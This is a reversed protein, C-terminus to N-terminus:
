LELEYNVMSITAIGATETRLIRPGLTCISAGNQKLSDIEEEEFGGEPGIIIAISAINNSKLDRLFEKITINQESEYPVLVIDYKSINEIINEFNITSTVIPLKQRGCQKSAEVAIKNWREVKKRENEETIKVISRAMQVPVFENVGLETGKQVILDMKDSKPVGQYLTIEYRTESNKDIIQEIKCIIEDNNTFQQIVVGYKVGNEDCVDFKDGINFRLVNKIHNVDNGMIFILSEKKQDNKIYFTAM